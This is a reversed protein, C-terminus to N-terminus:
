KWRSERNARCEGLRIWSERIFLAWRARWASRKRHRLVSGHLRGDAEIVNTGKSYLGGQLDSWNRLQSQLCEKLLESTLRYEWGQPKDRVIQAALPSDERFKDV